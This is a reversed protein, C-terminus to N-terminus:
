RGNDPALAAATATRREIDRAIGDLRGQNAAVAQQQYGVDVASWIGVLNTTQKCRVDAVATRIEEPSATPTNFAPDNNTDRPTRYLFGAEAMCASWARFVARVRSDQLSRDWSMRQLDNVFQRASQDGASDLRAGAEGQCGGEPVEVGNVRSPGRGTAATIHAPPRSPAPAASAQAAAEAEDPHYGRARAVAPDTLMYRDRLDEATDAPGPEAPIEFKLRAMCQRFTQQQATLFVAEQERTPLYRHLPLAAAPGAGTAPLSVAPESQRVPAGADPGTCGAVVAGGAVLTIVLRLVAREPV